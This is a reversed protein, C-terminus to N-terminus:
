MGKKPDWVWFNALWKDGRIVPDAAHLSMDDVNGDDLIDYFLVASGKGPHVTLNAKPFSTTGGAHPDAQDSLYLLLTAYRCNMNRGVGWDYHADYKQGPDYHVLQIDEANESLEKHNIRLTDAVRRYLNELVCSRSDRHVWATKSTRTSQVIGGTTSRHIGKKGKDIITKIESDDLFNHIKYV